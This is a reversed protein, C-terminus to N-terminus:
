FDLNCQAKKIHLILNENSIGWCGNKAKEDIEQMLTWKKVKADMKAKAGM